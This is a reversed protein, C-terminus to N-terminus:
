KCKGIAGFGKTQLLDASLNQWSLRGEACSKGNRGPTDAQVVFNERIRKGLKRMRGTRFEARQQTGEKMEVNQGAHLNGNQYVEESFHAGAATGGDTGFFERVEMSKKCKQWPHQEGADTGERLFFPEKKEASLHM